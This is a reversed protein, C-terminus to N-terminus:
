ADADPGKEAVPAPPPPAAQEPVGGNIMEVFSKPHLAVMIVHSVVFGALALLGFFHVVRAGDYGYFFWALHHLQVPKYMVLGSLVVLIGLGIASTYAARQLSNYLDLPPPDKRVRLYFLVQHIAPKVDRPPWFLRRRFERTAGLYVLYVIANIALLWGLAFHLNRAGALWQGARMWEPPVWNQFPLWDYTAGRPGFYPYAIWIQLGSMAMITLFPVNLWHTIRILLPQPRRPRRRM